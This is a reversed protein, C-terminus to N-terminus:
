DELIEAISLLLKEYAQQKKLSVKSKSNFLGSKVSSAWEKIVRAALRKSPKNSLKDEDFIVDIILDNVNRLINSTDTYVETKSPKKINM